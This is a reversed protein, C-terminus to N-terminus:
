KGTPVVWPNQLIYNISELIMNKNASTLTYSGLVYDDLKIASLSSIKGSAQMLQAYVTYAALLRGLGKSLHLVDRYLVNSGVKLIQNAYYVSSGAASIMSCSKDNLINNKIANCFMGYQGAATTGGKAVMAEYWIKRPGDLADMKTIDDDYPALWPCAYGIKANPQLDKIRNVIVKRDTAFVTDDALDLPSLQIFVYDWEHQKLVRDMTVKVLEGDVDDKGFPNIYSEQSTPTSEFYTYDTAKNQIANSHDQISSGEKRCLGFLYNVQNEARFVESCPMFTDQSHSNGIFLVKTTKKDCIMECVAFEEDATIYAGENLTARFGDIALASLGGTWMQGCAKFKTSYPTKAGHATMMTLQKAGSRIADGNADCLKLKANNCYCMYSGNAQIPHKSNAPLMDENYYAFSIKQPKTGNLDIGELKEDLIQDITPVMSIDLANNWIDDVEEDTLPAITQNIANDSSIRAAKEAAIANELPAIKDQIESVEEDILNQVKDKNEFYGWVVPCNSYNWNADWGSPKNKEEAECYITLKNCDRFADEGITTVSDPIKVSTLSRCDYFADTGISTVSNDIVVSKLSDCAYFAGTGISTIGYIKCTYTGAESYKYGLGGKDIGNGGWDIYKVNDLSNLQIETGANEILFIAVTVKDDIALELGIISNEIDNMDQANLIQGPQFDKRIYAM